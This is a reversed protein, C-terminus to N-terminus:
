SSHINEGAVTPVVVVPNRIDFAPLVLATRVVMMRYVDSKIGGVFGIFRSKLSLINPQQNPCFASKVLLLSGM